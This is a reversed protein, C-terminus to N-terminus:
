RPALSSSSILKRVRACPIRTAGLKGHESSSTPSATPSTTPSSQTLDAARIFPATTRNKSLTGFTFSTTTDPTTMLPMYTGTVGSAVGDTQTVTALTGGKILSSTIKFSSTFCPFTTERRSSPPGPWPPRLWLGAQLFVGVRIWVVTHLLNFLEKPLGLLRPVDLHLVVERAFILEEQGGSEQRALVLSSGERWLLEVPEFLDQAVESLHQLHLVLLPPRSSRNLSSSSGPALAEASPPAEAELHLAPPVEQGWHVKTLYRVHADHVNEKKWSQRQM